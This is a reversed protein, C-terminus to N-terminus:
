PVKIAAPSPVLWGVLGSVAAVVITSPLVHTVSLAVLTAAAVAVLAVVPWSVKTLM